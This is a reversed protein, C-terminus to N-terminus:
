GFLMGTFRLLFAHWYFSSFAPTIRILLKAHRATEQYHLVRKISVDLTWAHKYGRASHICQESVLNKIMELWEAPSLPTTVM